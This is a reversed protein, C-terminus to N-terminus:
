PASPYVLYGSQGLPQWLSSGACQAPPKAAVVARVGARLMADLVPRQGADDLKWFEEPEYVAATIRLGALHAFYFYFGTDVAGIKDGSHLGMKQLERAAEVNGIGDTQVPARRIPSAAKLAEKGAPVVILLTATLLVAKQIGRARRSLLLQLSGVFFLILFPVVYRTELAVLGYMAIVLTPWLLLFPFREKLIAPRLRSANFWALVAVVIMPLLSYTFLDAFFGADHVVARLQGRLNFHSNAGEYWYVPNYWLAQTAVIPSSFELTKPKAVIVRPAHVPIGASPDGGTWGSHAPVDNISWAYNLRGAESFTLHHEARSLPVILPLSAAVFVVAAVAALRLRRPALCLLLLIGIPLMAAKAYYGIALVFGLMAATMGSAAGSWVACAIRAALFAALAVLGDPNGVSLALFQSGYQWLLAFCFASWIRFLWRDGELRPEQVRINNWLRILLYAFAFAMAAFICWNVLHLVPFESYPSVGTLKFGAALVVPYLPSWYPHFLPDAHGQLLRDAMDLYSIADPNLNYRDTYAKAGALLLFVFICVLLWPWGSGRRGTIEM